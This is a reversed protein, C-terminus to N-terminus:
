AQLPADDGAPAPSAMIKPSRLLALVVQVASIPASEVAVEVKGGAITADAVTGIKTYGAPGQGWAFGGYILALVLLALAIKGITYRKM